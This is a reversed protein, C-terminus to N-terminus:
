AHYDNYFRDAELDMSKNLAKYEALNASVYDEANIVPVPLNGIYIVSALLATTVWGMPNLSLFRITRFLSKILNKLNLHM